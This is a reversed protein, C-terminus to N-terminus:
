CVMSKLVDELSSISKDNLVYQMYIADIFHSFRNFEYLTYLYEIKKNQLKTMLNNVYELENRIIRDKYFIDSDNKNLKNNREYVNHEVVFKSSEFIISPDFYKGSDEKFIKVMKKFEDTKSRKVVVETENLKDIALFFADLLFCVNLNALLQFKDPLNNANKHLESSSDIVNDTILKFPYVNDNNKCIAYFMKGDSETIIRNELLEWYLEKYCGKSYSLKDIFKLICEINCECHKAM